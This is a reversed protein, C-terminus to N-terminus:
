RKGYKRNKGKADEYAEAIARFVAEKDEDGLEGGAFLAQVESVLADVGQGYFDGTPMLGNVSTNLALALHNLKSVDNPYRSNSEYNQISRMTLGVRDALERQSLGERIRLEKLKDGFRMCVGREDKVRFM